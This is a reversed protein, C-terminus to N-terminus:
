GMSIFHIYKISSVPKTIALWYM